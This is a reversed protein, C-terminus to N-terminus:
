IRNNRFFVFMPYEEFIEDACKLFFRPGDEAIHKGQRHTTAQRSRAAQNVFSRNTGAVGIEQIIAKKNFEYFSETLTKPLESVRITKQM